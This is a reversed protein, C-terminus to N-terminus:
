DFARRLQRPATAALLRAAGAATAARESAHLHLHHQAAAVAHEM